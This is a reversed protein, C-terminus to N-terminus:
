GFVAVTQTSIAVPRGEPDWLTSRTQAYGNRAAETDARYFWWQDTRAAANLDLFQISWMLSSANVPMTLMPLVTPPWADVLGLIHEPQAQVSENRFRCWGGMFGERSGSFPLGGLAWRYDFFRTFAPTMGEVFPLEPAADPGPAVPRAPADVQIASQREGGFSGVAVTCVGDGQKVHTEVVSAARGSRLVTSHLDAVGPIVPAVFTILLSRLSRDSEVLGRMSKLAAAAVLGGFTARGQTWDQPAAFQPGNDIGTLVSQFSSESTSNM